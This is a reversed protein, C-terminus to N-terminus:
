ECFGKALGLELIRTMESKRARKYAPQVIDKLFVAALSNQLSSLTSSPCLKITLCCPNM